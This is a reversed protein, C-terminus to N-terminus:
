KNIETYVLFVSNVCMNFHKKLSEIQGDTYTFPFCSHMGTSHTGDAATATEGAVFAGGGAVCARGTFLIVSLNLFM